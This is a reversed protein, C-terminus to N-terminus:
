EEIGRRRMKRLQRTQELFQDLEEADDAWAGFLRRLTVPSLAYNRLAAVDESTLESHAQLLEAESRGMGLEAVLAEAALRTGKVIREGPAVTSDYVLRDMWTEAPPIEVPPIGPRKVELPRLEIAVAQGDPFGPEQDLEITKGHIVGEFVTTPM